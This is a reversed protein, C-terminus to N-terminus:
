LNVLVGVDECFFLCICIGLDIGVDHCMAFNASVVGVGSMIPFGCVVCTYGPIM